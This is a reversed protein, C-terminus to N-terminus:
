GWNRKLAAKKVIRRQKKLPFDGINDDNIQPIYGMKVKRFPKPNRPM